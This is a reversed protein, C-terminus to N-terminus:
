SPRGRVPSTCASSRATREGRRDEGDRRDRRHHARSRQGGLPAGLDRRRVRAGEGAGRHARLVRGRPPLLHGVAGQRLRHPLPDEGLMTKIAVIAESFAVHALQPTAVVDGVAYVGDVRPACTATSRSTLRARRGQRGRSRARHERQAPPPRRERRGPRGVLREDGKKGDFRVTLTAATATSARSKSAPRAGQHRAEHVRARRDARGAPRRRDPDAAASRPDHGRGRRRRPVVRVRVRDRRRRHGRGAGAGRRARLVHDSSLVRRGDFEFGPSRRARAARVPRSRARQTATCRPATPSASPARRRARPHRHGPRGHGQPGEAAIELGSTLRDIM